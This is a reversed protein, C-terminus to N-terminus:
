GLCRSFLGRFTNQLNPLSLHNLRNYRLPDPPNLRSPNESTVMMALKTKAVFINQDNLSSYKHLPAFM